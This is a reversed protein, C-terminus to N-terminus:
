NKLLIPTRAGWGYWLRRFDLSPREMRDASTKLQRQEPIVTWAPDAFYWRCGISELWTYVAHQVAIDSNGALLLSKSRSKICFGEDGYKELGHVQQGEPLDGLGALRISPSAVEESTVQFTAGTIRELIAAMEEALQKYKGPPTAIVCKAQGNEAVLFENQHDSEGAAVLPNSLFAVLGLSSLLRM